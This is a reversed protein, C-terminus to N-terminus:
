KRKKTEGKKIRDIRVAYRGPRVYNADFSARAKEINSFIGM